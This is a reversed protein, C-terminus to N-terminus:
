QEDMNGAEIEGVLSRYDKAANSRPAYSFIDSRKAQAEKIATCERIQSDFLRTEMQSAIKSMLSTANRSITSRKNHRTLVIGLIKLYKNTNERVAKITESLQAIADISFVDAQAPIIASTSATLASISLLGLAPPTDIVIFDYNEKVSQLARSFLYERGDGNIITEARALRKDGAIVDGLTDRLETKQIAKEPTIKGTLMDFVTGSSSDARYIYSLNCQSDLDVALVRHGNLKLGGAVATATTTKGVGGKQNIVSIIQSM